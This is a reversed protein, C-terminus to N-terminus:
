LPLDLSSFGFWNKEPPLKRARTLTFRSREKWRTSAVMFALAEQFDKAPIWTPDHVDFSKCMWLTYMTLACVVYVITHIELLTIPYEAIKRELVQGVMWLVQVCILMKALLNAKSKDDITHTTLHFFYGQRALLLMGNTTITAHDLMNYLRSIDIVFGGMSVFYAYVLNFVPKEQKSTKVGAAWKQQCPKSPKKKWTHKL